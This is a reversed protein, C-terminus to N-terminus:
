QGSKKRRRKLLARRALQRQRELVKTAPDVDPTPKTHKPTKRDTM